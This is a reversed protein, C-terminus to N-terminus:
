NNAVLKFTSMQYGLRHNKLIELNTLNLISFEFEKSVFAELIEIRRYISNPFGLAEYPGFCFIILYGLKLSGYDYGVNVSNSMFKNRPVRGFLPYVNMMNM